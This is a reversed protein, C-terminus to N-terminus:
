FEDSSDFLITNRVDAPTYIYNLIANWATEEIDSDMQESAHADIVAEHQVPYKNRLYSRLLTAITKELRIKIKLFSEDIENKLLHRFIKINVDQKSFSLTGKLVAQIYDLVLSKIGFQQTCYTYLYQEMTELPLHGQRCVTDHSKKKTYMSHIFTKMQTFSFDKVSPTIPSTPIYRTTPSNPTSFLSKDLSRRPSAVSLDDVTLAGRDDDLLHPTEHPSLLVPAERSRLEESTKRKTLEAKLRANEHVIADYNNTIDQIEGYVDRSSVDKQTELDEITETLKELIGESQDM